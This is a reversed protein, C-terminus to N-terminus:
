HEPDTGGNVLDVPTLHRWLYSQFIVVFPRRVQLWGGVSSCGHGIVIVYVNMQTSEVCM